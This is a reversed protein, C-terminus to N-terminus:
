GQWRQQTTVTMFLTNERMRIRGVLFSCSFEVWTLLNNMPPIRVVRFAFCHAGLRFINSAFLCWSNTPIRIKNAWIRAQESVVFLLSVWECLFRFFFLSGFTTHPWTPQMTRKTSRIICVAGITAKYYSLLLFSRAGSLSKQTLVNLLRAYSRAARILENADFQVQHVIARACRVYM